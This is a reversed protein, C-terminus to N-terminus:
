VRKEGQGWFKMCPVEVIEGGHAEFAKALPAAKGAPVEYSVTVSADQKDVDEGCHDGIM